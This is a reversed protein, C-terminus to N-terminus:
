NADVKELFLCTTLNDKALIIEFGFLLSLKSTIGLSVIFINIRGFM